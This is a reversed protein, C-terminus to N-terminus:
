SIDVRYKSNEVLLVNIDSVLADIDALRARYDSERGKVEIYERLEMNTQEYIALKSQLTSIGRYTEDAELRSTLSKNKAELAAVRASLLSQKATLETQKAHLQAEMARADAKLKDLDRFTLLEAKMRPVRKQLAAIDKEIKRDLQSLKKLDMERAAKEKLLKEHTSEALGMQDKQFDLLEEKSRVDEIEPLNMERALGAGIEELLGVIAAERAALDEKMEAEMEPYDQIFKRIAEEKALIQLYKEYKDSTRAAEERDLADLQDDGRALDEKLASIRREMAAIESTDAKVKDLLRQQEEPGSLQADRLDAELEDRRGRLENLENFLNFAQEKIPNARLADEMSRIQSAAGDLEAQFRAISDLLANNESEANRYEALKGPDLHAELEAQVQATVSAIEAEVSAIQAEKAQRETFMADVARREEDNRAKDGATQDLIAQIGTNTHMKDVLMNYDALTGQLEALERSLAEAQREYAGYNDANANFEELESSLVHIESSIFNTKNRLEAIYWNKDQFARGAGQTVPRVGKVGQNTM